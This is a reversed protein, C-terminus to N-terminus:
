LKRPYSKCFILLITLLILLTLLFHFRDELFKTFYVSALLANSTNLKTTKWPWMKYTHVHKHQYPRTASCVKLLLWYANNVSKLFKKLFIKSKPTWNQNLLLSKFQIKVFSKFLKELSEDRSIEEQATKFWYCMLYNARKRLSSM